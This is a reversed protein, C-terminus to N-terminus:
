EDGNEEMMESLLMMMKTRITKKGDKSGPTYLKYNANNKLNQIRVISHSVYVQYDESKQQRIDEGIEYCYKRQIETMKAVREM